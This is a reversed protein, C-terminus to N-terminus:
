DVERITVDVAHAGIRHLLGVFDRFRLRAWGFTPVRRGSRRGTM